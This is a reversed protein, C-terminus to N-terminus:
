RLAQLWGIVRSQLAIRADSWRNGTHCRSLRDVRGGAYNPDTM